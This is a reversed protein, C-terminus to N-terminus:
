HKKEVPQTYIAFIRSLDSEALKQILSQKIIGNGSQSFLKDKFTQMRVLREDLYVM